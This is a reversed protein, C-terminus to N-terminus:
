NIDSLLAATGRIDDTCALPLLLLLLTHVWM